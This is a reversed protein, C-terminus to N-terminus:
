MQRPTSSLTRMRDRSITFVVSAALSAAAAAPPRVRTGQYWISAASRSPRNCRTARGSGAFATGAVVRAQNRAAHPQSGHSQGHLSQVLSQPSRGTVTRALHSSGAPRTLGNDHSTAKRVGALRAASTSVSRAEALSNCLRLHGSGPELGFGANTHIPAGDAAAHWRSLHRSASSIHTRLGALQTAAGLALAEGGDCGWRGLSDVTTDACIRNSVSRRPRTTAGPM